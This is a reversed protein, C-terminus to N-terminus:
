NGLRLTQCIGAKSDGALSDFILICPRRGCPGGELQSGASPLVEEASTRNRKKVVPRNMVKRTISTEESLDQIDDDERSDEAKNLDSDDDSLRHIYVSEDSRQSQPSTEITDILRKKGRRKICGAQNQPSGGVRGDATRTCSM